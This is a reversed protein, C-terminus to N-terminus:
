TRWVRPPNGVVTLANCPPLPVLVTVMVESLPNVSGTVRAVVPNGAPTVELKETFGTTGGALPEASLVMVRFTPPVTGGPDYGNMNDPVAVEWDEVGPTRVLVTLMVRTTVAPGSKVTLQLGDDHIMVTSPLSVFVQVTPLTPPNLSVTVKLQAPFGAPLVQVMLGFGTVGGALPVTSVLTVTM